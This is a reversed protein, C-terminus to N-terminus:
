IYRLEKLAKEYKDIAEKAQEKTIKFEPDCQDIKIRVAHAEWLNRLNSFSKADLAKMKDGLAMGRYGIREMLGEVLTDAEVIAMEWDDDSGGDLRRKIGDWTNKRNAMTETEEFFDSFYVKKRFRIEMIKTIVFILGAAGIFIVVVALVPWIDSIIEFIQKLKEAAWPIFGEWFEFFKAFFYELNLWPAM